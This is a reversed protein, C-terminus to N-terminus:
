DWDSITSKGDKRSSSTWSTIALEIDLAKSYLMSVLGGALWGVFAWSFLIPFLYSSWAPDTKKRVSMTLGVGLAIGTLWFAVFVGFMIQFITM